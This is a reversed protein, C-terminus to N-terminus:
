KKIVGKKNFFIIIKIIDIFNFDNKKIRKIFDAKLNYKKEMYKIIMNKM